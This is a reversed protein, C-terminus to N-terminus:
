RLLELYKKLTEIELKVILKVFDTYDGTTHAKDLAEYYELRDEKKIIVPNFGYNMLNLNMLLRATRGNGDVFPHIKVLEGHLLAAQIIPHFDNWNEYNLVLKEMLEPVKLYDPPTHTAGKITVNERRYRGANENDIDKLVLQHIGKINWETIPNDEKVLDNLYLIAKEHNIAELHEKISKGGVTIGELVVQTERLTLTNGEIGNSNYTWELNISEELSRLTEKPIPRKNDLERKLQDVENFYNDELDIIFETSDPKIVRKDVPKIADVPINWSNGNKVAGEIRGEQLLQRIRRESINWKKVAEKTTMFEM